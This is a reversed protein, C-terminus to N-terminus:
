DKYRARNLKKLAVSGQSEKKPKRIIMLAISSDVDLIHLEAQM